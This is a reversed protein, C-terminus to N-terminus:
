NPRFVRKFFSAWKIIWDYGPFSLPLTQRTPNKIRKQYLDYHLIGKDMLKKYVALNPEKLSGSGKRGRADTHTRYVNGHADAHVRYKILPLDIYKIRYKKAIRLWLDYDESSFVEPSEDMMGVEDIAQKKVLVSSGIIANGWILSEFTFYRDSLKAKIRAGHEGDSDFNIGNTCVLGVQSDKEFERVQRELKEPLWLDDDDCFAIYEGQSKTIGYNRNVAVVGNNQNKFYKIRRDNYAKIVAETNDTSENDVVIIEFDQFTQALISDITESVMHARNYTPVIFSVKM